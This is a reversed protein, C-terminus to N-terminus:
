AAKDNIFLIMTEATSYRGNEDAVITNGGEVDGEGVYFHADAVNLCGYLM